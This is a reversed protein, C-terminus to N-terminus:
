ENASGGVDQQAPTAGPILAGFAGMNKAVPLAEILTRDIVTQVRTNVTDVVPSEVTVTIQEGISGIPLQANVTATFGTTLVINERKVTQFGALTFTLTYTGPRLEIIKYVGAGDTVVTRSQEILAPSAAEVAVGPVSAGTADTVTGAVAGSQASAVWSVLLCAIAFGAIRAAHM